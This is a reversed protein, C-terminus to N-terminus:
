GGLALISAPLSLGLFIIGSALLSRPPRRRARARYDAYAGLRAKGGLIYRFSYSFIDFGGCSRALALAWFSTLVAGSTFLGDALAVGLGAEGIRLLLVLLTLAASLFLHKIWLSGDEVDGVGEDKGLEEGSKEAKM